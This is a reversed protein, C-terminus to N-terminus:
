AAVPVKVSNAIRNWESQSMTLLSGGIEELELARDDSTEPQNAIATIANLAGYRSFDAEAILNQLAQDKEGELLGVAKALVEIAAVPKAITDGTKAARLADGM